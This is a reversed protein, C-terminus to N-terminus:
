ERKEIESLWRKRDHLSDRSQEGCSAHHELVFFMISAELNTCPASTNANLLQEQYKYSCWKGTLLVDDLGDHLPHLDDPTSPASHRAISQVMHVLQNLPM